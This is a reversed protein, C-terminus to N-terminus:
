ISRGHRQFCLLYFLLEEYFYNRMFARRDGCRDLQLGRIGPLKRPNHYAVRVGYLVALCGARQLGDDVVGAVCVVDVGGDVIVCPYIRTRITFFTYFMKKKFVSIVHCLNNGIIKYWKNHQPQRGFM